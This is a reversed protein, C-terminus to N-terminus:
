SSPRKFIQVGGSKIKGPNKFPVSESHQVEPERNQVCSLM